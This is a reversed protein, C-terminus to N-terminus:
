AHQPESPHLKFLTIEPRNSARRRDGYSIGRNVYLSRGDIDYLGAVFPRHKKIVRGAVKLEDMPRGHTHGSLMWQWPHGLLERANVPNHNLCIIPHDNEIGRWAAHADLRDTWEDDLGVITLKGHGRMFTLSENRLVQIGSAELESELRDALRTGIHRQRRGHMTYDHNGFTVVVGERTRLKKLLTGLPKVFRHGGTILDGTVVVLDPRRRNVFEVVQGLYGGLVMPSVHLDSLQVIKMGAFAPDLGVLPMDIRTIDIWRRHVPLAHLGTLGLSSMGRWIARRWDHQRSWHPRSFFKVLSRVM